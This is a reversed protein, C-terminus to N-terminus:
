SDLRRRGASGADGREEPHRRAIRLPTRMQRPYRTHLRGRRAPERGGNERRAPLDTGRHKAAEQGSPADFRIYALPDCGISADVVAPGLLRKEGVEVTDLDCGDRPLLNEFPQRGRVRSRVELAEMSLAESEVRQAAFIRWLGESPGVQVALRRRAAGPWRSRPGEAARRCRDERADRSSRNAM